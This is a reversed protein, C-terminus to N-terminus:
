VGKTVEKLTNSIIKYIKNCFKLVDNNHTIIIITCDINKLENYIKNQTFNDLSSNFEDLILLKPKRILARALAIRKKQGESINSGMNYIPTYYKMPMKEITKDICSIKCVEKVQNISLDNDGMVINEFITDYFLKVNQSVYGINKRYEQLNLDKINIDGLFINGESPFYTGLILQSLTSKGSGSEGIIGVIEGHKIKINVNKLIYESYKNYKFNMNSINIDWNNINRISNFRKKKKESNILEEIIKLYRLSFIYTKIGSVIKIILNTIVSLIYYFGVIYGISYVDENITVILILFVVVPGVLSILETLSTYIEELKSKELDVNYYKDFQKKWNIKDNLGFSKIDHLAYVIKNSTHTYNNDERIVYPDKCCIKKSFIVCFSIFIFIYISTIWLINFYNLTIYVFFVLVTGIELITGLFQSILINNVIPICNLRFIIDESTYNQIISNSFDLISDIVNYNVLKYIQKEFIMSKFNKYLVIITQVIIFVCFLFILQNELKIQKSVYDISEQIIFPSIFTIIYYLLILFFVLILTKKNVLLLKLYNINRKKYKRHKLKEVPYICLVYGTFNNKLEGINSNYRGCTPDVIIVKDNKISEIVVFHNYKWAIIAPLKIHQLGGIDSQYVKVNFLHKQFLHKIALLSAGDRGIDLEEKIKQIHIPYKYYNFIMASCCAGCDNSTTQYVCKVKRM